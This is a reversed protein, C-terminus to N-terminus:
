NVATAFAQNVWGEPADPCYELAYKQVFPLLQHVPFLAHVRSFKCGLSKILAAVHKWHQTGDLADQTRTTDLLNEWCQMVETPDTFDSIEFISLCIDYYHFPQAYNNFLDSVTLLQSNLSEIAHTKVAPELTNDQKVRELLEAQVTAIRLYATVMSSLEFVQRQVDSPFECKCYGMARSLLEVRQQMDVKLSSKALDLLVDAAALRDGNKLYHKWLLEAIQINKKAGDQLYNQIFPTEMTSLQDPNKSLVWDYLYYHFAEDKSECCIRYVEPNSNFPQPMKELVDFVMDYYKVKNNYIKQRADHEPKHDRLYSAAVNARDYHAAAALTVSVAGQYFQMSVYENVIDKLTDISIDAAAKVFLNSSKYLKQLKLDTEPGSSKASHIYQLAKYVLVDSASCYTECRDQILRAVADINDGRNMIYNILCTVLERAVESHKAESFFERFKMSILSNYLEKTSVYELLNQLKAGNDTESDVLLLFAVGQQSSKVLQAIANVSKQEAKALVSFSDGSFRSESSGGLNNSELFSVLGTLNAHLEEFIPRKFNLKLDSLSGDKLRSYTFLENNWIDVLLRSTYMALGDFSSSLRVNLLQFDAQSSGIAKKPELSLDYRLVDTDKVFVPVGGLKYFTALAQDHTQRSLAGDPSTAVALLACCLEKHGYSFVFKNPPDGISKIYEYFVVRRVICVSNKTLVAFEPAPTFYQLAAQNGYVVSSQQPPTQPSTALVDTIPLKASAEAFRERTRCDSLHIVRVSDVTSVLLGDAITFLFFDRDLCVSSSVTQKQEIPPKVVEAHTFSHSHTSSLYLRTGDNTTAVLVISSSQQKNYADISVIKLDKEHLKGFSLIQHLSYTHGLKVGHGSIEYISIAGSANLTYFLDRSEDVTQDIIKEHTSSQTHLWSSGAYSNLSIKSSFWSEKQRYDVEYIGSGASFLIRGTETTTFRPKDNSRVKALSVSLTSDFFKPDSNDPLEVAFLYLHTATTIILVWKVTDIFVDKKPKAFTVGTIDLPMEEFRRFPKRTQYDWFYLFPGSVFWSLNLPTFLGSFNVKEEKKTLSVLEQPLPISEYTFPSSSSNKEKDDWCFFEPIDSRVLNELSPYHADRAMYNDLVRAAVQLPPVSDDNLEKIVVVGLEQLHNDNEKRAVPVPVSM